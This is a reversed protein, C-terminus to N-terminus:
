RCARGVSWSPTAGLQHHSRLHLGTRLSRAGGRLGLGYQRPRDLGDLTMAARGGLPLSLSVEPRAALGRWRVGLSLAADAGEHRLHVSGRPELLDGAPGHWWAEVQWGRIAGARVGLVPVRAKWAPQGTRTLRVELLGAGLDLGRPLSVGVGALIAQERHRPPGRVALGFGSRLRGLRPAALLLHHGALERLGFPRDHVLHGCAAATVSALRAPNAGLRDPAPLPDAFPGREFAAGAAAVGALLLAGIPLPLGPSSLPCPPVPLVM